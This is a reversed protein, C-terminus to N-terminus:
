SVNQNWRGIKASLILELDVLLEFENLSVDVLNLLLYFYMVIDDVLELWDFVLLFRPKLLFLPLPRVILLIQLRHAPNRLLSCEFSVALNTALALDVDPKTIVLFFRFLHYKIKLIRYFLKCGIKLSNALFPLLPYCGCCVLSDSARRYLVVATFM